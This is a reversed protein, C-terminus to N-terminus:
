FMISGELTKSECPGHWAKSGTKFMGSACSYFMSGKKFGEKKFGEILVVDKRYAILLERFVRVIRCTLELELQTM